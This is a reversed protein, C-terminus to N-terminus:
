FYYGIRLGLSNSRVNGDSFRFGDKNNQPSTVDTFGNRYILSVFIANDDNIRYEMGPGIFWGFNIPLAKALGEQNLNVMGRNPFVTGDAKIIDSTGRNSLLLSMDFGTQVFFSMNDKEIARLKLGIPITVYQQKYTVVGQKAYGNELSTLTDKTSTMSGGRWDLSIGSSITYRENVNYDVTLGFSLGTNGKDKTIEYGNFVDSAPRLSNLSPGVYLGFRYTKFTEEIKTDQAIVATHGVFGLAIITLFLKKM